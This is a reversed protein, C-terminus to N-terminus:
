VEDSYMSGRRRALSKRGTPRKKHLGLSYCLSNCEHHAFFNSIGVSGLDTMGFRQDKSIIAPDTLLYYYEERGAYKPGGPRGRHGQLDCVLMDGGTEVWTWHSFADPLTANGSSWGSNSNFKEWEGNVIQEVSTNEGKRFIVNGKSNTFDERCPDLKCTRCYLNCTKGGKTPKVKETFKDALKAAENQMDVDKQTLRIGRNWLEPKMAKIVLESGEEFGLYSGKGHDVKAKFAERFGGEAFPKMDFTLYGSM